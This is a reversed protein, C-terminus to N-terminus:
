RTERQRLRRDKKETRMEIRKAEDEIQMVEGLTDTSGLILTILGRSEVNGSSKFFM